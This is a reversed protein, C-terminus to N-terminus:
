MPLNRGARRLGLSTVRKKELWFGFFSYTHDPFVVIVCQLGFWSFTLFLLLVSVTVVIDPLCNFCLLWSSQLVLFPVLNHLYSLYM